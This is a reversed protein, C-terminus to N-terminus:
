SLTPKPPIKLNLLAAMQRLQPELQDTMAKARFALEEIEPVSMKGGSRKDREDVREIFSMISAYEFKLQDALAPDKTRLLPLMAQCTVQLSYMIGQMDLVRSESVYRGASAIPDYRSDRWDDFYGNLTPTMWILAGVCEDMTPQWANAVAALEDLKRACDESAATVVEAQPLFQIPKMKAQAEANLKVLFYPKTGWLTPEIVYHFLNGNRNSIIRGNRAKLVLPSAPSDTSAESNPVGGDIYNDFKVMQKTGAVIGEITEYGHNHYIRFDDQMKTILQLIEPGNEMAARNYDSGSAEIIKEYAAGNRVFDHAAACMQKLKSTLYGKVEGLPDSAEAASAMKAGALFVVAALTAAFQFSPGLRVTQRFPARTTMHVISIM